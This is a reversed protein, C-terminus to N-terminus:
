SRRVEIRGDDGGDKALLIASSLPDDGKLEAHAAFHLIDHQSSVRKAKLKTAEKKLLVTSSPYLKKIEDAELEAFKLEKTPDVRDPNGVALVKEGLAKRKATTFQLLSASSLYNFSNEEVLYKGESSYM